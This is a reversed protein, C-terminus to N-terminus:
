WAFVGQGVAAPVVHYPTNDALPHPLAGFEPRAAEKVRATVNKFIQFFEALGFSAAGIAWVCTTTFLYTTFLSEM